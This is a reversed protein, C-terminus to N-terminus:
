ILQEVPEVARLYSWNADIAVQVNAADAIAVLRANRPPSDWVYGDGAKLRRSFDTTSVAGGSETQVWKLYVNATAHVNDVSIHAPWCADPPIKLLETPTDNTQSLNPSLGELQRTGLLIAM